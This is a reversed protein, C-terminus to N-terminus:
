DVELTFQVREAIGDRAVDLYLEWSGPMHFLLGEAVFRGDSERSVRAQRNMGHGHAPMGADVALSVGSLSGGPELADEVEVVLRFPENTPIPSPESRWRVRWSGAASTASTWGAPAGADRELVVDSPGGAALSPSRCGGALAAALALLAVRGM